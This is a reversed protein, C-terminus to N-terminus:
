KGGRLFEKFCRRCVSEYKVDESEVGAEGVLGTGGSLRIHHTARRGCKCIGRCEELEDAMALLAASGEFLEGEANTKLGYSVVALDYEDVIDSLYWVDDKMLFQAEDVLIVDTYILDVFREMESFRGSDLFLCEAGQPIARSTTKGWEGHNYRGNRVDITSKVILPKMGKELYCHNTALLRASKASNMPGYVFALKAM